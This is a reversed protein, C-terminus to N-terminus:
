DLNYAECDNDGESLVFLHDLDDHAKFDEDHGQILPTVGVIPSGHTIYTQPEQRKEKNKEM